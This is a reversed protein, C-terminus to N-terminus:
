GTLSRLRTGVPVSGSGAATGLRTFTASGLSASAGKRVMGNCRDFVVRDLQEDDAGDILLAATQGALQGVIAYAVESQSGVQINVDSGEVDITAPDIKLATRRIHDRALALLDLRSPLDPPM